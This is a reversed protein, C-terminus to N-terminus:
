TAIDAPASTGSMCAIEHFIRFVQYPDISLWPSTTRRLPSRQLPLRRAHKRRAAARSQEINQAQYHHRHGGARAGAPRRTQRAAAGHGTPSTPTTSPPEFPKYEVLLRQRAQTRRARAQPRRRVLRPTASTPPAPSTSGDAFWLSVDRSGTAQSIRASDILHDLAAGRVAADPNGLSGHKYIQDQFVNPNIAGIQVCLRRRNEGPRPTPAATPCTWLVHVAVSPCCGTFPAGTRRRQAKRGHHHGRRGSSSASARARTPTVGRRPEDSATQVAIPSPSRRNTQALM